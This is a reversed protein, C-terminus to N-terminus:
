SRVEMFTVRWVAVFLLVGLISSGLGMLFIGILPYGLVAGILSAGTAIILFLDFIILPIFFIFLFALKIVMMFVRGLYDERPPRGASSPTSMPEGKLPRRSKKSPLPDPGPDRPAQVPDKRDGQPRLPLLYRKLGYIFVYTLVALVFIGYIFNGLGSFQARVQYPMMMDLSLGFVLRPILLIALTVIGLMFSRSLFYGLERRNLSLLTDLCDQFFYGAKRLNAGLVSPEGEPHNKAQYDPNIHYASLLNAIFEDYPEFDTTAEEETMGSAISMELHQQYENLIDKQEEESLISIDEKLRSLFKHTTM